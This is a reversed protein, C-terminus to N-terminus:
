RGYQEKITERLNRKYLIYWSTQKHLKHAYDELLEETIPMLRDWDVVKPFPVEERFLWDWYEMTKGDPTKNDAVVLCMCEMAEFLRFSDPVVAGSPCPAIKASLMTQYYDEHSLGQTFGQTAKLAMSIGMREKMYEMVRYLEERRQHTIQGSFFLDITRKPLEKPIYKRMHTPYGTGIRHYQDHVGIHPNQIYVTMDPHNIADIDFDAEEDGLCIFILHDIKLLEINIRMVLDKHHRAPILVIARECEPLSSVKEVTFDLDKLIDLILGSDWQDLISADPNLSLAYAVKDKM